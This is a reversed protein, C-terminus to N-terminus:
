LEKDLDESYDAPVLLLGVELYFDEFTHEKESSESATREVKRLLDGDMLTLLHVTLQDAGGGKRKALSKFVEHEM